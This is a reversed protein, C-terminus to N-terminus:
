HADHAAGSSPNFRSQCSFAPASRKQDVNLYSDSLGATFRSLPTSPTINEVTSPPAARISLTSM